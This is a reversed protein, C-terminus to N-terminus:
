KEKKREIRNELMHEYTKRAKEIENDTYGYTYGRAELTDIYRNVDAKDKQIEQMLFGDHYLEIVYCGWAYEHFSYQKRM